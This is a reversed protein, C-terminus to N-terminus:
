KAATRKRKMFALSVGAITVLLPMGAINAWKLRNQLSDVERRLDKRVERLDKNVQAQKERFKRIEAEQEPSLIMQQAGAGQKAQQLETLKDQTDKLSAELEREKNRYQESAALQMERIRTFPRNM